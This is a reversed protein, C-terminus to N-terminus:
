GQGKKNTREQEWTPSKLGPVQGDTGDSVMVRRSQYFVDQGDEWEFPSVGRLCLCVVRLSGSNGLRRSALDLGQVCGQVLRPLRSPSRPSPRDSALPRLSKLKRKSQTEERLAAGCVTSPEVM